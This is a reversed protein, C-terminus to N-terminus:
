NILVFCSEIEEKGLSPAESSGECQLVLRNICLMQKLFHILRMNVFIRMRM